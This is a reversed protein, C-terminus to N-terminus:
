RKYHNIINKMDKFAEHLGPFAESLGTEEEPEINYAIGGCKPCRGNKLLMRIFEAGCNTCKFRELRKDM